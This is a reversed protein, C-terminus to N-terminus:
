DPHDQGMQRLKEQLARLRELNEQRVTYPTGQAEGVRQISYKVSELLVEIETRTLEM